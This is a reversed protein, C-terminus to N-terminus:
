LRRGAHRPDSRPLAERQLRAPEGDGRGFHQRRLTRGVADTEREGIANAARQAELDARLTKPFRVNRLITEYLAANPKGREYLKVAPIRLGEQYIEFAETAASGPAMGGVDAHHACTASFAILRGAHFVPTFMFIDPLHSGGEYPDSLIICDGPFLNDKFKKVVVYLADPISCMM